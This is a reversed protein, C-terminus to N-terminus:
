GDGVRTSKVGMAFEPRCGNHSHMTFTNLVMASQWGHDLIHIYVGCWYFLAFVSKYNTM